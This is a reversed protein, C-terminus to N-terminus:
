SLGPASFRIGVLIALFPALIDFIGFAIGATAAGKGGYQQPAKGARSRGVFGTIAAAIGLLFGFTGCIPLTIWILFTPLVALFGVIGLILSTIALVSSPGSKVPNQAEMQVPRQGFDAQAASPPPTWSSRAPPASAPPADFPNVAPVNHIPEPEVFAPNEVRLPPTAAAPESFERQPESFPSPIPPSTKPFGSDDSRSSSFPSAPPPTDFPSAPSSLDPEVRRPPEPPADTLPPIDIVQPEDADRAAMERRIEDESAYMTKLPDSQSPIDLIEDGAPPGIPISSATRVPEDPAAPEPIAPPMAAAFDEPRGVMTKYPDVPADEVLPTGDVQCFRM